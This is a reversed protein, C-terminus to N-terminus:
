ADFGLIRLKEIASNFEQNANKAESDANEIIKDDNQLMGQIYNDNASIWLENAHSIDQHIEGFADPAVMSELNQRIQMRESQLGTFISVVEDVTLKSTKWDQVAQREQLDTARMVDIVQSLKGVYVSETTQFPGMSSYILFAMTLAIAIIAVTAIIPLIRHKIVHKHEVM